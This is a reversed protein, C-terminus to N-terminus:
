STEEGPDEAEEGARSFGRWGPRKPLPWCGILFAIAVPPLIRHFVLQFYFRRYIVNTDGMLRPPLELLDLSKIVGARYLLQVAVEGIVLSLVVLLAAVVGTQLDFKLGLSWVIGVAVLVGVALSAVYNRRDILMAVVTWLVSGGAVVALLRPWARALPPPGERGEKVRLNLPFHERTFRVTHNLVKLLLGAVWSPAEKVRKWAQEFATGVLGAARRFVGPKKDAKEKEKAAPKDKVAPKPEETPNDEARKKRRAEAKAARHDRRDRLWGLPGGREKESIQSVQEEYCRPCYQGSGQPSDCIRCFSRGCGMCPVMTDIEPHRPCRKM